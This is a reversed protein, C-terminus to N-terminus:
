THCLVYCIWFESVFYKYIKLYLLDLNKWKRNKVCFSDTFVITM